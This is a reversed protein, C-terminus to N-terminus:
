VDNGHERAIRAAQQLNENGAVAQDSMGEWIRIRAELARAIEEAVEARTTALQRQLDGIERMRMDEIMRTGALQEACRETLERITLSAAYFDEARADRQAMLEEAILALRRAASGVPYIQLASAISARVQDDNM